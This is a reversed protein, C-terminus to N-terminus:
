ESWDDYRRRERDPLDDEADDLEYDDPPRPSFAASVSPLLMMVLLVVAYVIMLGGGFISWVNDMPGNMGMPQAGMPFAPNRAAIKQLAEQQAREMTPNIYAIQAVTEAVQVIITVVAYIISLVRGWRKMNLLGIGAIILMIALVLGVLLSGILYPMLWTVQQRMLDWVENIPPVNPPMGPGQPMPPLPQSFLASVFLFMIGLCLTCLLSLSGFVINLVGMVTVATPRRREM